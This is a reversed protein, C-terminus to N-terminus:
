SARKQIDKNLKEMWYKSKNERFMKIDRDILGLDDVFDMYPTKLQQFNFVLIGANQGLTCACETFRMYRRKM